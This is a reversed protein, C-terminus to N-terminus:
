ADNYFFVYSLILIILHIDIFGKCPQLISLHAILVMPRKTKKGEFSCHQINSHHNQHVNYWTISTRTKCQVKIAVGTMTNCSYLNGRYVQSPYLEQSAQTILRSGAPHPQHPSWQERCVSHRLGGTCHCFSVQGGTM